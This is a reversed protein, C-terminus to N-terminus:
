RTKEMEYKKTYIQVFKEHTLNYKVLLDNILSPKDFYNSSVISTIFSRIANKMQPLKENDIVRMDPPPSALHDVIYTPHIMIPYGKCDKYQKNFWNISGSMQDCYRKPITLGEACNKCSVIFYINHGTEWLVDTGTRAESEPRQGVFGIYQAMEETAKEFISFDIVEFQLNDLTANVSVILMNTNEKFKGIFESIQQAQNFGAKSLKNYTIGGIPKLLHSNINIASKLIEQSEAQNLYHTYEALEQKLLGKMMPDNTENVAEQMYKIAQDFQRIEAARFAKRRNIASNSVHGQEDYKLDVM